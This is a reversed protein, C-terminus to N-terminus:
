KTEGKQPINDWSCLIQYAKQLEDLNFYGFHCEALPIGMADALKRYANHRAIHRKRSSPEQKWFADFREHCQMKMKRMEPNALLGLAETPRPKHTGVYAHCSTCYYCKGSGYEKGYVIRNNTFIVPGGCLNCTTPHLDIMQTNYLISRDERLLSLFKCGIEKRKQKCESQEYLRDEVNKNKPTITIETDYLSEIRFSSPPIPLQFAKSILKVALDKRKSVDTTLDTFERTFRIIFQM